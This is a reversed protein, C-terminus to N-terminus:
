LLYALWVPDNRKQGLGAAGSVQETCSVKTNSCSPSSEMTVMPESEASSSSGSAVHIASSLDCAGRRDRRRLWLLPCPQFQLIGTSAYVTSTSSAALGSVSPRSWGRSLRQCPPPQPM